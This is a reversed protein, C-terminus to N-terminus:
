KLSALKATKLATVESKLSEIEAQQNETVRRFQVQQEQLAKTLVAVIENYKLGKTKDADHQTLVASSLVKEVEQAIFGMQRGKMGEDKPAKWQFSVPRLKMVSDLAGDKLPAIDKKHRIDSLAGAAGTAYATGNVHLTYSPSLIGIGVNGLGNIVLAGSTVGGGSPGYVQIALNDSAATTSQTHEIQYAYASSTYIAGTAVRRNFGIGTTELSLREGGSPGFVAAGNTDLLDAPSVTGIGVNGTSGQIRMRESPPTSVGIVQAAGGASFSLDMSESGATSNTIVGIIEGDVVDNSSSNHLSLAITPYNSSSTNGEIVLGANGGFNKQDIAIRGNVDLAQTPSTTGIGVNGTFHPNVIPAACNFNAMVQNADATSGNMLNVAPWTSCSQAQAIASLMVTAFLSAISIKLM